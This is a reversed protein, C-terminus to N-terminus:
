RRGSRGRAPRCADLVGLGRCRQDLDLVLLQGTQERRGRREGVIGRLEHRGRRAVDALLEGVLDAVDVGHEGVGRVDDLSVERGLALVMGIELWQHAEGLHSGVARDGHVRRGLRRELGALLQHLHEVQRALLDPDDGRREAAPEAALQLDGELRHRRDGGVDGAPRDLDGEAALLAQLGRDLPVRVLHVVPHRGGVVARQEGDLGDSIASPPGYVPLLGRTMSWAHMKEHPGYRTGLRRMWPLATSM